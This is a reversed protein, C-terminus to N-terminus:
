NRIELEGEGRKAEDWLADMEQLSMEPLPKPANDEVYNFRRIFKLNTRELASDPNIGYKRAMNVMSFLMDGFEAEMREKDNDQVEKEFEAVEEHVKAWVEEKTGWDFGVGAAKEQLRLAKVLSPLSGPVGELVKHSRGKEKLKLKEWNQLVDDSTNAVVNGYIHPHRYKLKECVSNLVEKISFLGQEEAIRAYFTIHMILDGLEKKVEGMDSKMVADALEFTEEITLPRLSEMTQKKDWPCKERLEVMINLLEEFAKLKEEM